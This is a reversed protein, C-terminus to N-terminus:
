SLLSSMDLISGLVEQDHASPVVLWVVVRGWHYSQCSYISSRKPGIIMQFSKLVCTTSDLRKVQVEQSRRGVHGPQRLQVGAEAQGSCGERKQRLFLGHKVEVHLQCLEGNTVASCAANITSKRLM